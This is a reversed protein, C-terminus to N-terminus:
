QKGGAMKILANINKNLAELEMRTEEDICPMNNLQLGNKPLISIIKGNPLIVNANAKYNAVTPTVMLPSGSLSVAMEGAQPYRAICVPGKGSVKPTIIDPICSMNGPAPTKFANKMSSPLAVPAPPKMRGEFSSDVECISVEKKLSDCNEESNWKIKSNLIEPPIKKVAVEYAWEIEKIKRNLTSDIQDELAKLKMEFDELQIQQGFETSGSVSEDLESLVKKGRKKRGAM